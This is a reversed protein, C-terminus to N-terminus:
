GNDKEGISTVILDWNSYSIDYFHKVHDNLNLKEILRIADEGDNAKIDVTAEVQTTFTVEYKKM